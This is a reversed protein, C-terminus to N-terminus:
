ISYIRMGTSGGFKARLAQCVSDASVFLLIALSEPGVHLGLERCIAEMEQESSFTQDINTSLCLLEIHVM